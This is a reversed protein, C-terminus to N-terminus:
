SNPPRRFAALVLGEKAVTDGM